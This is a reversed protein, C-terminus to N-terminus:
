EKSTTTNFMDFFLMVIYFVLLFPGLVVVTTIALLTFFILSILSMVFIPFYILKRFKSLGWWKKLHGFSPEIASAYPYKEHFDDVM